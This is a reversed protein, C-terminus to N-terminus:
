SESLMMKKDRKDLLQKSSIVESWFVRRRYTELGNMEGISVAVAQDFLSAKAKAEIIMSKLSHSLTMSEVLTALGKSDVFYGDIEYNDLSHVTIFISYAEQGSYGTNEHAPSACAVFIFSLFVLLLTRLKYGIQM